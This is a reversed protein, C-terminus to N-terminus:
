CVWSAKFSHHGRVSHHLAAETPLRRANAPCLIYISCNRYAAPGQLQSLGVAGCCSQKCWHVRYGALAELAEGAQPM